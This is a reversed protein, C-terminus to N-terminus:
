QQVLKWQGQENKSYTASKGCATVPRIVPGDAAGLGGEFTVPGDPCDLDKRVRDETLAEAGVLNGIAHVQEEKKSESIPDPVEVTNMVWKGNALVYTLKSGCGTVGQTGNGLPTFTLKEAPCNMDFVARKELDEHYFMLLESQPHYKGCGASLFIGLGFMVVLIARM